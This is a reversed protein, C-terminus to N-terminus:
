RLNLFINLLFFSVFFIQQKKVIIKLILAPRYALVAAILISVVIEYKIWAKLGFRAVLLTTLPGISFLANECLEKRDINELAEWLKDM